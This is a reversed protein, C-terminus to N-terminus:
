PSVPAPLVGELWVVQGPSGLGTVNYLRRTESSSDAGDLVSVLDVTGIGGPYALYVWLQVPHLTAATVNRGVAWDFPSSDAAGRFVLLRSSSTPNLLVLAQLQDAWPDAVVQWRGSSSSIARTSATDRLLHITSGQTATFAGDSFSFDDPVPIDSGTSFDAPYSSGHDTLNLQTLRAAGVGGELWYLRDAEDPTGQALYLGSPLLDLTNAFEGILSGSGAADVLFVSPTALSGADCVAPVNLLALVAGDHSSQLETLCLDTPKDLQPALLPTLDVLHQDLTTLSALELGAVDLFAASYKAPATRLLLVVQSREGARDVVDSSVPEGALPTDAATLLSFRQTAAHDDLLLSAVYGGGSDHTVLLFRPPQPSSTGTCAALLLLFLPWLRKM